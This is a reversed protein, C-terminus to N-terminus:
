SHRYIESLQGLKRCISELLLKHALQAERIDKLSKIVEAYRKDKEQNFLIEGYVSMFTLYGLAIIGIWLLIMLVPRLKKPIFKDILKVLGITVLIVVIVGIILM